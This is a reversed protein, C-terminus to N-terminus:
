MLTGTCSSGAGATCSYCHQALFLDAGGPLFHHLDEITLPIGNSNLIPLGAAQNFDCHYLHGQWDVSVLTRCMIEHATDPNFQDALLQLYQELADSKELEDRFRGIPVNTITYLKNFRIGHRSALEGRYAEELQEQAGPLYAGGPNYVLNLEQTDGYGLRNLEKLAAISADYVGRGRQADVNKERYCPLSAVIVLGQEQCYRPLWEMGPETMITLNSRLLRRPSLGSSQQILETFYPNLEPCGGTIDLVIGEHHRLFNIIRTMVHLGMIHAGDPSATMHCHSCSLNCLNGLNVQLTRLGRFTCYEPNLELLRDRFPPTM